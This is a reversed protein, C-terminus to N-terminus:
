LYTVQEGVENDLSDILSAFFWDSGLGGFLSDIAGDDSGILIRPRIFRASIAAIMALM